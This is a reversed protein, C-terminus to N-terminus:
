SKLSFIEELFSFHKRVNGEPVSLILHHNITLIESIQDDGSGEKRYLRGVHLPSGSQHDGDGPDEGGDQGRALGEHPPVQKM